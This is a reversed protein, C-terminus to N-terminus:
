HAGEMDPHAPQTISCPALDLTGQLPSSSVMQMEGLSSQWPERQM